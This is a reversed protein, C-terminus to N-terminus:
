PNNQAYESAQEACIGAVVVVAISLSPINGRWRTSLARWRKLTRISQEVRIRYHSLQQNFHRHIPDGDQHDYPSIFPGRMYGQDALLTEHPGLLDGVGSIKFVRM